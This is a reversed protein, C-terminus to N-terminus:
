DDLGADQACDDDGYNDDSDGDGDCAGGNNIYTNDFVTAPATTSNM